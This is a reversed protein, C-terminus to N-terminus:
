AQDDRVQEQGEHHHEETAFESTMLLRDALAAVRDAAAAERDQRSLRRAHFPRADHISYDVGWTAADHEAEIDRANADRDRQDALEDRREAAARIMALTTETLPDHSM